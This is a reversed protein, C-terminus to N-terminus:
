FIDPIFGLFGIQSLVKQVVRTNTKKSNNKYHSFFSNSEVVTFSGDTNSGNPNYQIKYVFYPRAFSRFILRVFSYFAGAILSSESCVARIRLSIQTKAPRVLRITSNITRRSVLSVSTYPQSQKLSVISCLFREM